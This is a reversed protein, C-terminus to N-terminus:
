LEGLSVMFVAVLIFVTFGALLSVAATLVRQVRPRGITAGGAICCALLAISSIVGTYTLTDIM